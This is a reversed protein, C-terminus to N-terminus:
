ASADGGDLCDEAYGAYCRSIGRVEIEEGALAL